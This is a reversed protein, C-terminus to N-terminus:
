LFHVYKYTTENIDKFHVYQNVIQLLQPKLLTVDFDIQKNRLWEEIDAKKWASTPNKHEVTSHYSANDMVIISPEQLNAILQHEFWRLFNEQNMEGHYDACKSKSAFILEAGEIFGNENGAHLVIYRKGDVKTSKVSKVDSDQWSRSITGDKFIWTEDLFVFQYLGEDKSKVYSSLFNVRKLAIHGLEMLGRRPDDKKWKFGIAQLVKRLSSLSGHFIHKVEM